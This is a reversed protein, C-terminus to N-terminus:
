IKAAVTEGEKDSGLVLGKNALNSHGVKFMARKAAFLGEDDVFICDGDDLYVADFTRCEILEYIQTYDGNHEVETIERKFPDILFAKM